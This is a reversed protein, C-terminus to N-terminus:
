PRAAMEHAIFILMERAVQPKPALPIIHMHGWRSLLTLANTPTAMGTQASIKNLALWDAGKRILKEQATEIADSNELAFGILVQHALRHKGAWTLIDPAQVLTLTLPATDKKVKDPRTEPFTYDSVAAAFILWDYARYHTQFAELMAAATPTPTIRFPGRPLSVETHAALLRVEEAGLTFAAEALALGMQGTSYNSLFRVADWRERTAGLTILVKKGRLLPPSLAREVTLLIRRLSALRGVDQAGSALFGRGPAILSVWPLQRLARLNARVTPHRYMNGEMAPAILVPKRTALFVATLLDDCLGHALKAITHATAPAILLLDAQKALAIHQTWQGPHSGSGETGWLETFVGGRALVELTLPSVFEQAARTLLVTVTHGAKQLARVLLPAKYAAISGTVGLLIHAM